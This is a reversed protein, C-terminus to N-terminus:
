PYEDYDEYTDPPTIFCISLGIIIALVAPIIAWYPYGKELLSSMSILSVVFAILRTILYAMLSDMM